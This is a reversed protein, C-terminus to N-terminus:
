NEGANVTAETLAGSEIGADTLIELYTGDKILSELAAQVAKTMESDKQTAFGYPAADFVEGVTELKGDLKSVADGTVPLDASFADAQGQVVANTVEPQGDFPLIEIAEKGADTCAKTKAPLEDTHQVTGAQVAVTLGCANDPDVDSGVPAAWLSGANLFNVFDVSKQREVTDTFSSSGMDLAGEQIRPIISDFGLIEWEPTLGLKSSVAEALDVGWGVPNGDNDKYENPPYEADTGIRLVGADKIEAPLLAVAAEDATISASPTEEKPTDTAGDANTCGTLTLLAAAALAPIAYRIKM